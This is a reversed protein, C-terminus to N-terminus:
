VLKRYFVLLFLCHHTTFVRWIWGADREECMVMTRLLLGVFIAALTNAELCITSSHSANSANCKRTFFRLVKLSKRLRAERMVLWLDYSSLAFLAM